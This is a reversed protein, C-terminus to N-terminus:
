EPPIQVNLNRQFGTLNYMYISIYPEFDGEGKQRKYLRHLIIILIKMEGLNGLM